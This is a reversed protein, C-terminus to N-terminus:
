LGAYRRLRRRVLGRAHGEAGRRRRRAGAETLSLQPLPGRCRVRFSIAMCASAVCLCVYITGCLRRAFAARIAPMTADTIAGDPLPVSIEHMQGELRMDALRETVVDARAVGAAVLARARTPELERLIADITAAADPADLRVPIAACRSSRCRRRSSAWRRHRARLRAPDAGAQVGLVRAVEAAHAPGAGGFGVMAYARPDKGKEVIHIRAAAAMNEVVMRHIGWATDIASLGLKAGVGPWRANPPTAIWRWAAASSSAPITSLRAAPQRRDRDARHRRAGYCAPGPDAGASHPGVRLLGVEDIAAISGGGAGIEIMDIVPAKIPLGSGKKFRHVRAAEMMPAIEARGDEILCAKATTGGM